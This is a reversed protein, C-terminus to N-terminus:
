VTQDTTKPDTFKKLIMSKTCGVDLLYQAMVEKRNILILLIVESFRRAGKLNEWMRTNIPYLTVKVTGIIVPKTTRPVTRVPRQPTSGQRKQKKSWWKAQKKYHKLDDNDFEINNESPNIGASALVHMPKASSMERRWSEDDSSYSGSSDSSRSRVQKACMFKMYDKTDDGSM